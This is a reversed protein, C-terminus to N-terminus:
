NKTRGIKRGRSLGLPKSRIGQHIKVDELKVDKKWNVSVFKLMEKNLM